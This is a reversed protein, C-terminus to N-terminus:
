RDNITGALDSFHRKVHDFFILDFKANEHIISLEEDNLQAKPSSKKQNGPTPNVHPVKANAFEEFEVGLASPMADMNNAFFVYDYKEIERIAIELLEDYPRGKVPDTSSYFRVFKNGHAKANHSLSMNNATFWDELKDDPIDPNGSRFIHRAFRHCSLVHDVPNRVVTLFRAQEGVIEPPAYRFYHSDFSRAHQNAKFLLPYYHAPMIESGDLRSYFARNTGHVNEMLTRTSTSGSKTVLCCILRLDNNYKKVNGSNTASVLDLYENRIVSTAASIRKYTNVSASILPLAFPKIIEKTTKIMGM